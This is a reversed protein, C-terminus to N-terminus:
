LQQFRGSELLQYLRKGDEDACAYETTIVCGDNLQGTVKGNKIALYVSSMVDRQEGPGQEMDDVRVLLVDKLPPLVVFVPHLKSAFPPAYDDAYLAGGQKYNHNGIVQALADGTATAVYPTYVPSCKTTGQPVGKVMPIKALCHTVYNAPHFPLQATKREYALPTDPSRV